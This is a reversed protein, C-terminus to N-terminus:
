QATASGQVEQAKSLLDNLSARCYQRLDVKNSRTAIRFGEKKNVAAEQQLRDKNISSDRQLYHREIATMATKAPEADASSLHSQEVCQKVVEYETYFNKLFVSLGGAQAAPALMVLFGAVLWAGAGRLMGSGRTLLTTFPVKNSSALRLILAALM